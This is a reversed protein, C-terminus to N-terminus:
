IRGTYIVSAPKSTSPRVSTSNLKPMALKTPVESEEISSLLDTFAASATAGTTSAMLAATSTSHPSLLITADVTATIQPKAKANIGTPQDVHIM